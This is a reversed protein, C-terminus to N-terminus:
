YSTQYPQAYVPVLPKWWGLWLDALAEAGLPAGDKSQRSKAKAIFGALLEDTIKHEAIGLSRDTTIRVAALGLSVRVFPNGTKLM